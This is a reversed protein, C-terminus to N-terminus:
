AEKPDQGCQELSRVVIVTANDTGQTGAVDALMYAATLASAAGDLALPLNDEFFEWVGDTMLLATDGASLQTQATHIITNPMCICSRLANSNPFRDAENVWTLTADAHIIALLSDGVWALDVLGNPRFATALLTCGGGHEPDICERLRSTKEQAVQLAELPTAGTTLAQLAAQCAVKSYIEGYPAGGIGDAVLAFLTDDSRDIKWADDNKPRPGVSSWAACDYELTPESKRIASECSPQEKSTLTPTNESAPKPTPQEPLVGEQKLPQQVTQEMQQEM